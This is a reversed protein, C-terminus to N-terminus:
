ADSPRGMGKGPSDTQLDLTTPPLRRTTPRGRRQRHTSATDRVVTLLHHDESLSCAQRRRPPRCQLSIAHRITHFVQELVRRDIRLRAPYKQASLHYNLHSHSHQSQRSLHRFNHHFLLHFQIRHTNRPSHRRHLSTSAPANETAATALPLSGLSVFIYFTM